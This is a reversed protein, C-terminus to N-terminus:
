YYHLILILLLIKKFLKRKPIRSNSTRGNFNLDLFRIRSIAPFSLLRANLWTKQTGFYKPIDQIRIFDPLINYYTDYYDILFQIM